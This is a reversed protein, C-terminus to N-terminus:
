ARILAGIKGLKGIFVISGNIVVGQWYYGGATYLRIKM